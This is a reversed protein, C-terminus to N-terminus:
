SLFAKVTAELQETNRVECEWLILYDWGNKKLLAQNERDRARTRALKKNWFDTNSVPRNRGARCNHGHWYCGHVFIAKKKGPFIIDPKGPLAKPHLRYYRHYGALVLVGRVIKEPRTNKSKVARMIEARKDKDYIDVM